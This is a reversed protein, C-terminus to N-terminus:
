EYQGDKLCRDEVHNCAVVHSAAINIQQSLM